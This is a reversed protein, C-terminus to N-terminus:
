DSEKKNDLSIFIVDEVRCSLAFCLKELTLATVSENHKLKYITRRDIGHKTILTYTTEGKEKLTHWLPDYSIM